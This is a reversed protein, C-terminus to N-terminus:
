FRWVSRTVATTALEDTCVSLRELLIYHSAFSTQAVKLLELGSQIKFISYAYNHNLLFKVIHKERTYTNEMWPFANAFDKFILNLTHVVCPSWSIHKHVKKLRREQQKVTRRTILSLKYCMTPGVEDIATLLFEAIAKWNKEVGSFNDEVYLFMSGRSNSAVVNILSQHKLNMWGDSVISTGQTMWTDKIPVLDKEVDRKVEDLLTTRARDASPPKYDKPANKLDRAMTSFEPSKLVNFPIGNACLFRVMSVDVEVTAFADSIPTKAAPVKKSM